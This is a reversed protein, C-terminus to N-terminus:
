VGVLSRCRFAISSMKPLFTFRKLIAGVARQRRGYVLEEEVAGHTGVPEQLM